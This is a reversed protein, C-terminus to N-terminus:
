IVKEQSSKNPEGISNSSNLLADFDFSKNDRLAAAAANFGISINLIKMIQVKYEDEITWSRSGSNVGLERLQRNVMVAM